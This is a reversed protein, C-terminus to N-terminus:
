TASARRQQGGGVPQEEDEHERAQVFLQHDCPAEIAEEAQRGVVEGDEDDVVTRTVVRRADDFAVLAVADPEKAAPRGVGALPLALRQVRGEPVQPAFSLQRDGGTLHDHADDVGVSAEGVVGEDLHRGVEAIRLGAGYLDTHAHVVGRGAQQRSQLVELEHREGLDELPGALLQAADAEPAVALERPQRGQGVEAVCRPGGAEGLVELEAHPQTEATPGVVVARAGVHALLGDGPERGEHALTRAPELTM